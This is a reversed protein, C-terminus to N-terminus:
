AEESEDEIEEEAHEAQYEELCSESCFAHDDEDWIEVTDEAPSERDAPYNRGAVGGCNACLIANKPYRPEDSPDYSM